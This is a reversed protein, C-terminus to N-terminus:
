SDDQYREDAETQARRRRLGTLRLKDATDGNEIAHDLYPPGIALECWRVRSVRDALAVGHAGTLAPVSYDGKEIVGRKDELRLGLELDLPQTLRGLAIDVRHQHLLEALGPMHHLVSQTLTSLVRTRSFRDAVVGGLSGLFMNPASRAAFSLATLFVSGTTDLVFWGVALRELWTGIADIYNATCLWRFAPERLVARITPIDRDVSQRPQAM